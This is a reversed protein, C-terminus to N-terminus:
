QPVGSSTKGPNGRGLFNEDPLLSRMSRFDGDISPDNVVVPRMFIILETKSRSRNRQTFLEGFFPIRNMGPVGDEVDSNADQILGGMVAIQGSNVKIISEMERTQVQPIASKIAPVSCNAVGNGCPNALVPNPDNVYSSVRSITPKVNLLVTDNEGIQPTVNMVFGVAVINPTTTYSTTAVNATSTTEARITFYVLNNVVKLIASQNNLVSIKPSSLVRVTGFSELLKVVLSLNGLNQTTGSLTFVSSSVGSPTTSNPSSNGQFMGLGLSQWNIGQQYNNNLEVEMITAEILVQKRASNVVQDIFEQIREHQRSSARITMVGSEPNSIVSAAERFSTSPLPTPMVAGNPTAQTGPINAATVTTQETAANTRNPNQTGLMGTPLVKDTERLIDRINELLTEWFKNSSTTRINANSVNSGSSGGGGGSGTGGPTTIQTAVGIQGTTLREINAYDIRYIKLFPIDPQVVLNPGDLEWRLDVQKGIRNLLQPLTQDIANLTVAGRIGPHIDVNLGADRALAFLLEQVAVNNVVVSYTEARASPRPRPLNSSLQVPEPIDAANSPTPTPVSPALIHEAASSKPPQATCGGLFLSILLAIFIKAQLFGIMSPNCSFPM